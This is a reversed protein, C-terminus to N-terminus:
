KKEGTERPMDVACAPVADPLPIKEVTQPEIKQLSSGTFDLKRQIAVRDMMAAYRLEITEIERGLEVIESELARKRDSKAVHQNKIYVYSSGTIGLVVVIAICRVLASVGLSNRYRNRKRAM